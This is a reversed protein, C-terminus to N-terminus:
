WSKKGKVGEGGATEGGTGAVEVDRRSGGEDRVWGWRCGGGGGARKARCWEVQMWRLEWPACHDEPKYKWATRVRQQVVSCNNKWYQKLWVEIVHVLATFVFGWGWGGQRRGNEGDTKKEEELERHYNTNTEWDRDRLAWDKEGGVVM